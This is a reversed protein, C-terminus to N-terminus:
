NPWTGCVLWCLVGIQSQYFSILDINLKPTVDLEPVYDTLFPATVHKLLSRGPYTKEIFDKVNRVVAQVYKSFSMAWATVGDQLKM